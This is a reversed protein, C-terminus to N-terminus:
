RKSMGLIIGILSIIIFVTFMLDGLTMGTTTSIDWHLKEVGWAVLISAFVGLLGFVVFTGVVEGENPM